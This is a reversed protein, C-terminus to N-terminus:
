GHQDEIEEDREMNELIFELKRSIREIKRSPKALSILTNFLEKLESKDFSITFEISLGKGGSDKFGITM